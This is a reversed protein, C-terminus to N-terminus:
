AVIKELPAFDIEKAKRKAAAIIPKDTVVNLQDGDFDFQLIRDLFDKYSVYIGKTRFWKRCEDSHNFKRIGHEFSLHPSRLVDAEDHREFLKAYVEGDKLLGEPNEKHLFYYECAAYWDPIVFLRKNACKICGSKADYIWRKKIAKLTDRSYAERLLEPYLYLAQQYPNEANEEAGLTKLMAEKNSAISEIKDHTPQTFEEIEEDTMDLDQLFQYNVETDKIWDEEYNTLCVHCGNEKFCRKYHNWDDYYKWLKLQSATFMVRINEKKLDHEQGWVDKIVAECKHEDCWEIFAFESLLGKLYPGRVMANGCDLVGPECIGGGDIFNIGEVTRIGREIEYEQTIYNLDGTRSGEWDPIVICEDIDISSEETASSPLARYAMLKGLNIGKHANIIDETMGCEMQNRIKEWMIDSVAQVKDTRLQGASATIIRYHRQDVTRDKMLIPVIFGDLVLQELMDVNKWKLIIKDYTIDLHNLGMARSEESAFEAIKKSMKLKNWSLGEPYIIEGDNNELKRSDLVSELRVTRPIGKHSKILDELQKQYRRKEEILIKAEDNEGNDKLRNIENMDEIIHTYVDFEENTFLDYTAFSM